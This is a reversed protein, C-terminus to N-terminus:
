GGLIKVVMFYLGCLWLSGGFLTVAWEFMDMTLFILWLLRDSLSM